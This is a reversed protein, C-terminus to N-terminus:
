DGLMHMLIARQIHLRNEAQDFVVSQPGDMVEDTVEKGRYAPLDHMFIADKKALSLLKSNVQYSAFVQERKKAEAEQGMSTWTDTYVIDAGKVATEPKETYLITAGSTSAYQQTTSLINKDITYDPPSAIQFNMGTLSAALLLSNAVNNGDGIFALTLGNLEGKKKM